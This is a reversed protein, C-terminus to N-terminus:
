RKKKLSNKRAHSLNLRKIHKELGKSLINLNDNFSSIVDSVSTEIKDIDDSIKTISKTTSLSSEILERKLNEYHKANVDMALRAEEILRNANAIQESFYISKEENLIEYQEVISSLKATIQGFQDSYNNTGQILQDLNDNYLKVKQNMADQGIHLVENFKTQTKSITQVFSNIEEALKGLILDSTTILSKTSDKQLKIVDKQHAIYNALGLSVKTFLENSIEGFRNALKELNEETSQSYTDSVSVLEKKLDSLIKNLGAEITEFNKNASIELLDFIKKTEDEIKKIWKFNEERVDALLSQLLIEFKRQLDNFKEEMSLMHISHLASLEAIYKGHNEELKKQFSNNNNNLSTLFSEQMETLHISTNKTNTNVSQVLKPVHISFLEHINSNLEGLRNYILKDQPPNQEDLISICRTQIFWELSVFGNSIISNLFNNLFGICISSTIGLISTIFATSIGTMASGISDQFEESPQGIKEAIPNIAEMLGLFTGLLGLIILTSVIYRNLSSGITYSNFSLNILNQYDLKVRKKSLDALPSLVKIGIPSNIGSITEIKSIPQDKEIFRLLKINQFFATFKMGFILLGLIFIGEILFAIIMGQESLKYFSFDLYYINYVLLALAFLIRIDLLKRLM